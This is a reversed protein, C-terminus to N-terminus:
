GAFCVVFNDSSDVNVADACSRVVNMEKSAVCVSTNDKLDWLKVTKDVGATAMLGPVQASFSIASVASAHADFRFLPTSGNVRVDFGM